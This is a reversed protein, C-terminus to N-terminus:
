LNHPIRTSGQRAPSPKAKVPTSSIHEVASGTFDFVLTDGVVITKPIKVGSGAEILTGNITSGETDDKVRIIVTDSIALVVGFVKELNTFQNFLNTKPVLKLSSLLKNASM